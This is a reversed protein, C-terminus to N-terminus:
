TLNSSILQINQGKLKVTLTFEQPPIPSIKPPGYIGQSRSIDDDQQPASIAEAYYPAMLASRKSSHTLGILHGFEHTAVNLLLIGPTTPQLKWIEDEDFRTLLTRDTGNPLEAWALVGKPGDFGDQRGKGTSVIINARSLSTAQTFKLDCVDSWAKFALHIINEFDAKSINNLYNEIYYTLNRSLWKNQESTILTDKVGCRPLQILKETRNLLDEEKIVNDKSKDKSKDRINSLLTTLSAKILTKNRKLSQLSINAPLYGYYKLYEFIEKTIPMPLHRM